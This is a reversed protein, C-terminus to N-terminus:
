IAEEPDLGDELWDEGELSAALALEDGLALLHDADEPTVPVEADDDDDPVGPLLPEALVHGASAVPAPAPRPVALDLAVGVLAVVAGGLAGALLATRYPALRSAREQSRTM